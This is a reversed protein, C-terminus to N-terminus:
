LLVERRKGGKYSHLAVFLSMILTNLLLLTRTPSYTVAGWVWGAIHHIILFVALFCGFLPFFVVAPNSAPTYHQLRFYTPALHFVTVTVLCWVQLIKILQAYWDTRVKSRVRFPAHLLYMWCLFAVYAANWMLHPTNFLALWPEWGEM